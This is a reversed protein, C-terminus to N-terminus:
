VLYSAYHDNSIISIKLSKVNKEIKSVTTCIVSVNRQKMIFQKKDNETVQKSKTKISYTDM